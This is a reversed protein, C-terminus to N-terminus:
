QLLLLIVWEAIELHLAPLLGLRQLLLLQLRLLQRISGAVVVPLLPLLWLCDWRGGAGNRSDGSSILAASHSRLRCSPSPWLGLPVRHKQCVIHPSQEPQLPPQLKSEAQFTPACAGPLHHPTESKTAICWPPSPWLM